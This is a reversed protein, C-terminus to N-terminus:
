RRANLSINGLIIAVSFVLWICSASKLGSIKAIDLEEIDRAVDLVWPVLSLLLTLASKILGTGVNVDIVGSFIGLM